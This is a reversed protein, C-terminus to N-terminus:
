TTRESPDIKGAQILLEELMQFAYEHTDDSVQGADRLIPDALAAWAPFFDADDAHQRVLLPLQQGLARIREAISEHTNQTM